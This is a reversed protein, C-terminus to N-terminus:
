AQQCLRGAEIGAAYACWFFAPDDEFSRGMTTVNIGRTDIPGDGVSVEVIKHNMLIDAEHLQAQVTARHSDTLNDPICVITKALALKGISNTFHYDVGIHRERPDAFSVRMVAVPIGGLAATANVAEAQACGGHGFPTATGVIGPGIAVIAVDADYVNRAALLASHLNVAEADGGMAQGCTIALNVLGTELSKTAVKSFQMVLASQDTMIYVIKADPLTKRIGAAVLPMQSHLECCAVPMGSLTDAALMKAHTPSGPEEICMVNTQLPTYRLKMIHGEKDPDVARPSVGAADDLRAIIFDFGGTGLDLDTATSNVLVRDGPACLGALEVFCVALHEAPEGLRLVQMKDDGYKIGTVEAEYRNM